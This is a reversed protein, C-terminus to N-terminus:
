AYKKYTTDNTTYWTTANKGGGGEKGGTGAADQEECFIIRYFDKGGARASPYAMFLYKDPIKWHINLTSHVMMM